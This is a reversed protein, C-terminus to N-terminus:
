KRKRCFFPFPYLSCAAILIELEERLARFFFPLSWSVVFAPSIRWFRVGSYWKKEISKPPFTSHPSELSAPSEEEVAKGGPFVEWVWPDLCLDSYDHRLTLTCQGSSVKYRRDRDEEWSPIQHGVEQLFLGAWNRLLRLCSGDEFKM